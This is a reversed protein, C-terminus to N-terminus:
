LLPLGGNLLVRQVGRVVLRQHKVNGVLVDLAYGDDDGHHIIIPSRASTNKYRRM